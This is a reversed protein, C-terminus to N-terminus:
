GRRGCLSHFFSGIRVKAQRNGAEGGEQRKGKDEGAAAAGAAGPVQGERAVELDVIGLQAELDCATYDFARDGFAFM